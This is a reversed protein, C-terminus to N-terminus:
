RGPLAPGEGRGRPGWAGKRPPAAGQRRRAGQCCRPTPALGEAPGPQLRLRPVPSPASM